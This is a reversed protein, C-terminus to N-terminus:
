SRPTVAATVPVHTTTLELLVKDAAGTVLTRVVKVRGGARLFRADARLEGSSQNSLAAASLNIAVPFTEAKEAECALRALRTAAVDAFWIMAGAHVTGIPSLMGPAVPMVALVRERSQEVISFAIQFEFATSGILQSM